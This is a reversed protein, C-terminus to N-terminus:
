KEQTIDVDISYINGLKILLKGTIEILNLYVIKPICSYM